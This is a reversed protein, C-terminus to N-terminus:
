DVYLLTDCCFAKPLTLPCIFRLGFSFIHMIMIDAHSLIYRQSISLNSSILKLRYVGIVSNRLRCSCIIPLCCSREVPILSIKDAM